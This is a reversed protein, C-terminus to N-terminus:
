FKNYRISISNTMWFYQPLAQLFAPFCFVAMRPSKLKAFFRLNKALKGTNHLEEYRSVPM